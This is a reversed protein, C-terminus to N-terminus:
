LYTEVDDKPRVYVEGFKSMYKRVFEKAKSKVSDTCILDEISKCHKLEKLMVFHTLKRALHKFDDTNTIRGFQCEPKRYSNLISVMVTAMASRFSEKIKKASESNVDTMQKLKLKVTKKIKHKSLKAKSSSSSSKRQKSKELIMEKQKRLMEKNEKYKKLDERFQLKDKESRPSIIYEQVLGPRKKKAPTEEGVDEEEEEEKADKLFGLEDKLRKDLSSIEGGKPEMSEDVDGEDDGVVTEWNSSAVELGEGGVKSDDLELDTSTQNGFDDSTLGSEDLSDEETNIPTPPTSPESKLKVDALIRSQALKEAKMMELRQQKEQEFRKQADMRNFKNRIEILLKTDSTEDDTDSDESSSTSSLSSTDSSSTTSSSDEPVTPESLLLPPEWQAKRIRIHYYYPRGYKDKATKWKPPLQVPPPIPGMFKVKAVEEMEVVKDQYPLAPLVMPLAAQQQVVQPPGAGGYMAMAGPPTTYNQWQGTAPNWICHYGAGRAPDYPATFRPDTGMLLCHQEHQRWLERQRRRRESEEQELRLTFQKRRELKTIRHSHQPPYTLNRQLPDSYLAPSSREDNLVAKRSSLGRNDEDKNNRGTAVHYGVKGQLHRYRSDLRREGGDDGGKGSRESHQRDALLLLKNAQREHEKMQEIRERKPIRFVVKLGAWEELLKQALAVIETIINYVTLDPEPAKAVIAVLAVKTPTSSASQSQIIAVTAKQADIEEVKVVVDKDKAPDKKPEDDESPSIDMDEDDSFMHALEEIISRNQTTESIKSIVPSVYDTMGVSHRIEDDENIEVTIIDGVLSIFSEEVKIETKIDEIKMEIDELPNNIEKLPLIGEIEAVEKTVKTVVVNEAASDLSEVKEIKINQIEEEQDKPSNSESDESSNNVITKNAVSWKEVTSLVKSDQLMTKNPIPLTAITQLIELRLSEMKGDQKALQQADTMWGHILRLGHYDLFLRRCPFEGRRLLRLLKTRQAPEKSRVMLRSLKLTHAQNKLGTTQLTEIEADLDLDEFFEKRPKLKIREKKPPRKKPEKKPSDGSIERSEKKAEKKVDPKDEEQDKDEIEEEEDEDEDDEDDEEDPEEGLWGRCTSAECFCKQAEKGYRQFQYDFTIEEGALITRKSFFGIRLEGNVTWKQTEANPDCSHNIFRSINGKQTADIIADARLAMFYYHRNKDQSYDAARKDFKDPDLVEGVYELIFEGYPINAAARIGLGKKVTNFAECPAFQGKQFRKNTCRESVACLSGCEIMLLRNLCDEGCGYEGRDIEDETLFCDCTMKKAEKCSIRETLYQNEKLHIFQKLRREVELKNQAEQEEDVIISQQVNTPADVPLHETSVSIGSDAGLSSSRSLPTPSSTASNPQLNMELESSRRWRSKVKVPKLLPTEPGTEITPSAFTPSEQSLNGSGIKDGDGFASNSNDSTDIDQLSRSKVLGKGRSSKKLNTITKIRSSRRISNEEDDEEAQKEAAALAAAKKSAKSLQKSRKAKDIKKAKAEKQKAIKKQAAKDALELAKVFASAGDDDDKDKDKEEVNSDTPPNKEPTTVPSPLIMKKEAKTRRITRPKESPPETIVKRPRGKKKLIKTASLPEEEIEEMKQAEEQEMTPADETIKIDQMKEVTSEVLDDQDLIDQLSQTSMQVDSQEDTEMEIDKNAFKLTEMETTQKVNKKNDNDSIHSQAINDITIVDDKIIEISKPIEETLEESDRIKEIMENTNTIKTNVNSIIHENDCLNNSPTDEYFKEENNEIVYMEPVSQHVIRIEETAEQIINGEDQQVAVVIEDGGGSETAVIVKNSRPSAACASNDDEVICMVEFMSESSKQSEEEEEIVVEDSDIVQELEAEEYQLEEGATEIVESNDINYVIVDDEIDFHHAEHSVSVSEVNVIAPPLQEQQLESQQQNNDDLADQDQEEVIFIVEEHETESEGSKNNASNSSNDHLYRYKGFSKHNKVLNQTEITALEEVPLPSSSDEVVALSESIEALSPDEIPITEVPVPEMKGRKGRGPGGRRNGGGRKKRPPMRQNFDSKTSVTFLDDYYERCM